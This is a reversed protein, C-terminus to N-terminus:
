GDFEDDFDDEDCYNGTDFDGSSLRENVADIDFYEPDYNKSLEFLAHNRKKKPEKLIELIRIYGDIGGCDDPPCARKGSLCVPLGREDESLSEPPIIKSVVIQHKWEDGFDYIYTFKQKEELRLDDLCFENENEEAKLRLPFQEPSPSFYVHGVKFSHLHNNQWGMAIQIIGHLDALTFSGPVQISRWIPPTIYQLSVRLVFVNEPGDIHGGDEEELGPRILRINGAAPKVKKNDVGELYDIIVQRGDELSESIKPLFKGIEDVEKKQEPGGTNLINLCDTLFGLTQILGAFPQLPLDRVDFDGYSDLSRMWGYHVDLLELIDGRLKGTKQDSFFNYSRKVKRWLNRCYKFFMKEQEDSFFSPDEEQFVRVLVPSFEDKGPTGRSRFLEDRMYAEVEVQSLQIGLSELINNLSDPEDRGEMSILPGLSALSLSKENWLRTELGFAIIHINESSNVFGGFHIPPKKLLSSGGYYYGYAIQEEIPLEMNFREFTKRFGRELKVMWDASSAMLEERSAVSLHEIAFIGEHWNLVECLIADGSAFNWKKYLESFDFVTLTVLPNGGPNKFIQENSRQDQAFLAPANEWGALTHYIHFSEYERTVTKKPMKKGEADLLTCTWPGSYNSYFPLFRHGPILIGLIVEEDTPSIIFRAGKFFIRRPKFRRNDKSFVCRGWYLATILEEGSLGAFTKNDRIGPYEMLEQLSFDGNQKLVFADILSVIEKQKKESLEKARM